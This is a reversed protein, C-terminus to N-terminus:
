KQFRVATGYMQLYFYSSENANLDIDQRMCVVADANLLAARKKLEETAIYFAKEFNGQKVSWDGYVYSWSSLVEPSADESQKIKEIQSTYKKVYSDLANGLLGKNSVQFHVPGVVEYPINIDGTTVIINSM